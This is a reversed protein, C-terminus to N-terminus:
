SHEVASEANLLTREIDNVAFALHHRFEQDPHDPLTRGDQYEIFELIAPTGNEVYQLIHNGMDVRNGLPLGLVSSYFTTELTLSHVVLFTHALQTEPKNTSQTM